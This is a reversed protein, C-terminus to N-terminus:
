QARDLALNLMLVNVRAEGFVGWQPPEIHARVLAAVRAPNLRRARAVRAVQYLAAAPTIHPDLGSGSATVLDVPVPATNNPDAAQLAAIRAKVADLLAPNLPGFNSGGSAAANNPMPSTASLRGWFYKPDQFSQSMLTSGVVKGDRTVLSGNAQTPFVWAGIGTVALPYVLGTVLTLVAFLVVVPRLVTIMM